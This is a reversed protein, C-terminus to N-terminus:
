SPKVQSLRAKGAYLYTPLGTGCRSQVTVARSVPFTLHADFFFTSMGRVEEAERGGKEGGVRQLLLALKGVVLGGRPGTEGGEAKRERLKRRLWRTSKTTMPKPKNHERKKGVGRSVHSKKATGKRSATEVRHQLLPKKSTQHPIPQIVVIPTPNHHHSRTM